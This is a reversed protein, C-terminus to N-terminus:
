FPLKFSLMVRNSPMNGIMVQQTTVGLTGGGVGIQALPPREHVGPPPTLPRLRYRENDAHGCVVVEAPDSAKPCTRVAGLKSPVAAAPPGVSPVIQLGLMLLAQM